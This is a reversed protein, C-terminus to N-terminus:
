ENNWDEKIALMDLIESVELVAACSTIGEPNTTKTKNRCIRKKENYGMENHLREEFFSRRMGDWGWRM